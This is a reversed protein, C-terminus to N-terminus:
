QKRYNVTMNTNLQFYIEPNTQQLSERQPNYSTTLVTMWPPPTLCKTVMAVLSCMIICFSASTAKPRM